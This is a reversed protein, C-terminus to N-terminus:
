YKFYLLVQVNDPLIVDLAKQKVVGFAGPKKEILRLLTRDRNIARVSSTGSIQKVKSWHSTLQNEQMELIVSTFADQIRRGAPRAMPAAPTGQPWFTREKLYLQRILKQKQVDPLAQVTELEPLQANVVVAFVESKQAWCLQCLALLLIACQTM